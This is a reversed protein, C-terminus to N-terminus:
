RGYLHGFIQQAMKRYEDAKLLYKEQDPNAYDKAPDRSIMAPDIEKPEPIDIRTSHKIAVKSMLIQGERSLFWNIFVRSANPHPANNLFNLVQGGSTVYGGEKPIFSVVPVEIGQRKWNVITSDMMLNMGLSYKGHLMWDAALRSDAIFLPEQKALERMYDLGLMPGFDEEIMAAFWKAAGGAHIIDLSLIKGKWKPDLLNRYSALEEKYNPLLKFNVYFPAQPYLTAAFAYKGEKDLFPFKGRYWVKEDKVEPLIMAERLSQSSGVNKVHIAPDGGSLYLDSTYIERKHETLIKQLLQTPPGSLWQSDIGYKRKFGDTYARRDQEPRGSIIVVTGEKKAEKLTKEWEIQWDERAAPATEKPVKEPVSVPKSPATTCGFVIFLMISILLINGLLKGYM